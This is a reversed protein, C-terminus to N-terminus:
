SPIMRRQHPMVAAPMLLVSAAVNPVVEACVSGPFLRGYVNHGASALVLLDCEVRDSFEIIDEAVSAGHLLETTIKVDKGRLFEKADKGAGTLIDFFVTDEEDSSSSAVFYLECPASEAAIAAWEVAAQWGLRAAPSDDLAAVIRGAHFQMGRRVVLCPSASFRIVRDVTSGLFRDGLYHRHPGLVILDANLQQAQHLIAKWPLFLETSSTVDVGHVTQRIQEALGDKAEQLLAEFATRAAPSVAYPNGTLEFAHFVNLKAHTARAIDAAVRLAPESRTTLDTAVLISRQPVM